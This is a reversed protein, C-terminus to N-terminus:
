RGITGPLTRALSDLNYDIATLLGWNEFYGMPFGPSSAELDHQRAHIYNTWRRSAPRRHHFDHCPADGVLVFLRVFLHWTLLVCWWKTWLFFGSLSAADLGPPLSGPFVGVTAHCVFSRDRTGILEVDPFRHECLIRLVTAVQLLITLPFIWAIMLELLTDTSASIVIIGSWVVRGLCDHARDGTFLSARVRRMLFRLHFLPSCLCIIVRRWLTRKSLGPELGCMGLVFDAFEDEDTLLKKPSHHLMHERQYDDFRKFLLLASILRGARRNYERTRFVTGHSCHHFIVVQFIGLGCSTALLGIPLLVWFVVCYQHLLLSLVALACGALLWILASVVFRFAPREKMAEDPAPKATLWTLFPQLITPIRAAMRARPDLTDAGSVLPPAAITSSGIYAM